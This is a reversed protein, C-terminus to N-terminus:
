QNLLVFKNYCNGDFDKWLFEGNEMIMYGPKSDEKPIAVSGPNMYIYNEHETCKPIHTHGNMLIDGKKLKPPTVENFKHGHTAFIIHDELYLICYEAMIPFDLVMQDVEAECNGRVCLIESSIENLMTIVRKPDYEKPLDNRPGHYLIDGLLLLKEAKEIKYADVMKECYYASGHIDSAIMIKM